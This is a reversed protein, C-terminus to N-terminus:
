ILFSSVNIHCCVSFVILQSCLLMWWMGDPQDSWGLLSAGHNWSQVSIVSVSLFCLTRRGAELGSILGFCLLSLLLVYVSVSILRFWNLVVVFPVFVHDPSVSICWCPFHCCFMFFCSFHENFKCVPQSSPYM